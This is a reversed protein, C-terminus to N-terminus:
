IRNLQARQSAELEISLKHVHKFDKEMNNHLESYYERFIKHTHKHKHAHTFPMLNRARMKWIFTRIHGISYAQQPRLHNLKFGHSMAFNANIEVCVCEFLPQRGTEM